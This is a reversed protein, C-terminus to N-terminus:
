FKLEGGKVQMPVLREVVERYGKVGAEKAYDALAERCAASWKGDVEKVKGFYRGPAPGEPVKGKLAEERRKRQAETEPLKRLEGQLVAAAQTPVGYTGALLDCCGPLDLVGLVYERKGHGPRAVLRLTAKAPSASVAAAAGSFGLYISPKLRGFLAGLQHQGTVAGAAVGPKLLHYAGGEDLKVEIALDEAVMEALVPRDELVQGSLGAYAADRSAAYVDVRVQAGGTLPLLMLNALDTKAEALPAGPLWQAAMVLKPVVVRQQFSRAIRKIMEIGIVPSWERFSEPPGAAKKDAKKAGAVPAGAPAVQAAAEREVQLRRSLEKMEVVGPENTPKAAWREWTYPVKETSRADEYTELLRWLAARTAADYKGSVVVQEKADAPDYDTRGNSRYMPLDDLALIQSLYVQVKAVDDGDDGYAIERVRLPKSLPIKDFDGGSVTVEVLPGVAPEQTYKPIQQRVQMVDFRLTLTRPAAFAGVPADKPPTIRWAGGHGTCTYGGDARLIGAAEEGFAGAPKAYLAFGDPVKIEVRQPAALLYTVAIEYSALSLESDRLPTSGDALLYGGEGTWGIKLPVAYPYRQAEVSATKLQAQPAALALRKVQNRVVLVPLKYERSGAKVAVEVARSPAMLGTPIRVAGRGEGESVKLLVGEDPDRVEVSLGAGVSLDLGTNVWEILAYPHYFYLPTAPELERAWAAAKLDALLYFDKLTKDLVGRESGLERNDPHQKVWGAPLGWESRHAVVLRSLERRRAQSRDWAVMAASNATAVTDGMRRTEGDNEGNVQYLNSLLKGLRQAEKETFWDEPKGDDQLVWLPTKPIQEPFGAKGAAAPDIVNQVSFFEVHVRTQGDVRGMHGILEGGVPIPDIGPRPLVLVDHKDLMDGLLQGVRQNHQETGKIVADNNVVDGTAALAFVEVLAWKPSKGAAVPELSLPRLQLAGASAASPALAGQVQQGRASRVTLGVQGKSDLTVPCVEARAPNVDKGKQNLVPSVKNSVMGGSLEWMGEAPRLDLGGLFSQGAALRRAVAEDRGWAGCLGAVLEAHRAETVAVCPILDLWLRHEVQKDGSTASDMVSLRLEAAGAQVAVADRIFSRGDQARLGSVKEVAAQLATRAEAEAAVAAARAAVLREILATRDAATQAKDRAETASKVKRRAQQLRTEASKVSRLAKAVQPDGKRPLPDRDEAKALDSQTQALAADAEGEETEANTLATQAQGLREAAGKAERQALDPKKGLDAESIKLGSEEAAARTRAKCAAIEAEAQRRAAQRQRLEALAAHLAARVEPPPAQGETDLRLTLRKGAPLCLVEDAGADAVEDVGAEEQAKLVDAGSVEAAGARSLRCVAALAADLVVGPRRYGDLAVFRCGPPAAEGGQGVVDHLAVVRGDPPQFRPDGEGPVLTALAQSEAVRKDVKLVVGTAPHYLHLQGHSLGKPAGKPAPGLVPRFRARRWVEVSAASLPQEGVLIRGAPLTVAAPAAARGPVPQRARGVSTPYDRDLALTVPGSDAALEVLELTADAPDGPVHLAQATGKPIYHHFAPVPQPALQQIWAPVPVDDRIEVGAAGRRLYQRLDRLHLYLAYFVRLKDRAEDDDAAPPEVVTKQAPDLYHRLLVFGSGVETDAAQSSRLALVEGPFPSIVSIGDLAPAAEGPAPLSLSPATVGPPPMLHVGNHWTQNLGIPWPAVPDVWQLWDLTAADGSALVIWPGGLGTTAWKSPRTVVEPPLIEFRGGDAYRSGCLLPPGVYGSKEDAGRPVSGAAIAAQMNPNPQVLLRLNIWYRGARRERTLDKGTYGEDEVVYWRERPDSGHGAKALGADWLYKPCGHPDYILLWLEEPGRFEFGGIVIAHNGYAGTFGSNFAVPNNRDLSELVPDIRQLLLPMPDGSQRVSKPYFQHQVFDAVKAGDKFTSQYEIFYRETFPLKTYYNAAAVKKTDGYVLDFPAGPKENNFIFHDPPKGQVQILYNYVMCMSTRVCWYGSDANKANVQCLAPIILVKKGSRILKEAM